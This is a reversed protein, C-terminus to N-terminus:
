VREVGIGLIGRMGKEEEQTASERYGLSIVVLFMGGPEMKEQLKGKRKGKSTNSRRCELVARVVQGSKVQGCVLCEQPEESSGGGWFAVQGMSEAVGQM